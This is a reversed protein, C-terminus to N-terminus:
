KIQMAINYLSQVSSMFTEYNSVGSKVNDIVLQIDQSLMYKSFEPTSAIVRIVSEPITDTMRFAYLADLLRGIQGFHKLLWDADVQDAKRVETFAVGAQALFNTLAECDNEPSGRDAAERIDREIKEFYVVDPTFRQEETTFEVLDTVVDFLSPSPNDLLDVTMRSWESIREFSIDENLEDEFFLETERVLTQALVVIPRENLADVNITWLDTTSDWVYVTGDSGIFYRNLDSDYIGYRQYVDYVANVKQFYLDYIQCAVDNEGTDSDTHEIRYDNVRMQEEYLYTIFIEVDELSEEGLRGVSRDNLATSLLSKFKEYEEVKDTSIDFLDCLMKSGFVSIETAAGNYVSLSAIDDALVAANEQKSVYNLACDLLDDTELRCDPNASVFTQLISELHIIDNSFRDAANEGTYGERCIQLFLDLFDDEGNEETEYAFQPLIEVAVHMIATNDAVDSLSALLPSLQSMSHKHPNQLYEGVAVADVGSKLLSALTDNVNIAVKEGQNTTIDTEGLSRVTASILKRIGVYKSTTLVVSQNLNSVEGDLATSLEGVYTERYTPETGHEVASTVLSSCFVLPTFTLMLAVCGSMVGLGCSVVKQAAGTEVDSRFLKCRNSAKTLSVVIRCIVRLFIRLIWFLPVILLQRILVSSVASIATDASASQSLKEEFGLISVLLSAVARGVGDFVGLKLLLFSLLYALPLTVLICIQRGLPKEWSLIGCILAVGILLEIKLIHFLEM